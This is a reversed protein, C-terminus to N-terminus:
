CRRGPPCCGRTASGRPSCASSRPRRCRGRSSTARARLRLRAPAAGLLQAENEVGEAIVDLSLARAMASSRRSSRPASRSSGSRRRRLLPRDEAHRDPLAQPLRAVLLRHRLRRPRPRRRARPAGGPDRDRDGVGRDARERHDRAAPPDPRPRHAALVEAVVAPLDRHAVQRASLNVSVDLPRADPRQEHWALTQRCAAEQVWRGIPEILGSDEAIPIFEAPDLLGREPHQWRVLAELAPSRAAPAAVVVPQYHLVLESASSRRACSASSRAAPARARARMEADFLECRARGREKARYM